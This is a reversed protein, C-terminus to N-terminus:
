RRSHVAKEVDCWQIHSYAVALRPTPNRIDRSKSKSAQQLNLRRWRRLDKGIPMAHATSLDALLHASAAAVCCPGIAMPGSWILGHKSIVVVLRDLVMAVPQLCFLPHSSTCKDLLHRHLMSERQDFARIQRRAGSVSQWAVVLNLVGFVLTMFSGM